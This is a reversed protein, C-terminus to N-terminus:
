LDFYDESMLRNQSERYYITPVRRLLRKRLGMDATVVPLAYKLAVEVIADDTHKNVGNYELIKCRKSAISLALKAAKGRKGGELTLKELEKIVKDLVLCKLGMEELQGIVDVGNAYLMLVSTDVLAYRKSKLYNKQDGEM